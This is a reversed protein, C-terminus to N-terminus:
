STGLNNKDGNQLIEQISPLEIRRYSQEMYRELQRVNIIDKLGM